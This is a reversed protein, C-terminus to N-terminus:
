KSKESQQKMGHKVVEKLADQQSKERQKQLEREQTTGTEQEIFDLNKQDTDSKLHEAKAVETGVKAQHLGATALTAQAKAQSEAIQAQLLQMQLM